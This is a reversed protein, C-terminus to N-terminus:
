STPKTSPEVEKAHFVESLLGPAEDDPDSSDASYSESPAAAAIISRLETEDVTSTVWKHVRDYLVDSEYIRISYSVSSKRESYWDHTVKALTIASTGLAVWRNLRPNGILTAGTTLAKSTKDWVDSDIESKEILEQLRKNLKNM